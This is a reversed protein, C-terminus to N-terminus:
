QVGKSCQLRADVSIRACSPGQRSLRVGLPTLMTAHGVFEVQVAEAGGAGGLDQHDVSQGPV